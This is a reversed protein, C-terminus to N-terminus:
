SVEQVLFRRTIKKVDFYDEILGRGNKVLSKADQPNSCIDSIANLLERQNGAAVKVGANRHELFDGFDTSSEISAVVPIGARFYDLTKSPFTPVGTDRQTAVIGCDCACLLNLYDARPIAPMIKVNAIGRTMDRVENELPGRGVILFLINSSREVAHKAAGIIDDLGRGKSLTGGFVAIKMDQPLKYKERIEKRDIKDPFIAETWIPLIEIKQKADIWYHKKLFEVNMPSMCGIVDFGRVLIRELFLLIQYSFGGSMLGMARQHYPIFDWQILYKKSRSFLHCIMVPAWIASPAIAIIVEYNNKRLLKSTTNAAKLSTGTWKVVRMVFKGFSSFFLPKFRYVNLGFRHSPESGSQSIDVDRWEVAIVDVEAESDVFADALENILGRRGVDAPFWSTILLVRKQKKEVM